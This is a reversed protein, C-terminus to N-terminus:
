VEFPESEWECGCERCRYYNIQMCKTKFFGKTFQRCVPIYIELEKGCEPCKDCGKTAEKELQKKRNFENSSVKIKM